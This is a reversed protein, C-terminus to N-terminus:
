LEEEGLEDDLDDDLDDAPSLDDLQEAKARPAEDDLDDDASPPLFLNEEPPPRLELVGLAKRLRLCQSCTATAVRYKDDSIRGTQRLENVISARLFEAEVLQRATREAALRCRLGSAEVYERVCRELEDETLSLPTFDLPKRQYHRGM